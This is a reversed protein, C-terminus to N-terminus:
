LVESLSPPYQLSYGNSRMLIKLKKQNILRPNHAQECLLKDEPSASAEKTGCSVGVSVALTSGFGVCVMVKGVTVFVPVGMDKGEGV